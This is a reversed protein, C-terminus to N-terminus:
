STQLATVIASVWMRLDINKTLQYFSKIGNMVFSYL